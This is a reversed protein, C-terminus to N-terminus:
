QKDNNLGLINSYYTNYDTKEDKSKDKALDGYLIEDETRNDEFFETIASFNIWDWFDTTLLNSEIKEIRTYFPMQTNKSVNAIKEKSLVTFTKADVIYLDFINFGM